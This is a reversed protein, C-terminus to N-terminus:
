GTISSMGNGMLRAYPDMIIEPLIISGTTLLQGKGCLPGRPSESVAYALRNGKRPSYILYYLGNVKRISSAEFFDTEGDGAPILNERYSGPLIETMNEPNIEGM